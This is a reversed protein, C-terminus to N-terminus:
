DILLRDKIKGRSAIDQMKIFYECIDENRQLRRNGLQRHIETTDLRPLFQKTPIQKLHKWSKPGRANEYFIKALGTLRRRALTLTQIENLKQFSAENEIDQIWKKISYTTSGDFKSIFDDFERLNVPAPAIAFTIENEFKNREETEEDEEDDRDDEEEEGEEEEEEQSEKLMELNSLAEPIAKILEEKTGGGSLGFIKAIQSLDNQNPQNLVNQYEDLTPDFSYNKFKRVQNRSQRHGEKNFLIKYLLKIEVFSAEDIKKSVYPIDKLSISM